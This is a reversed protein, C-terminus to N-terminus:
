KQKGQATPKNKVALCNDEKWKQIEYAEKHLQVYNCAIFKTFIVYNKNLHYYFHQTIRYIPVYFIM